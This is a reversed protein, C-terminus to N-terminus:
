ERLRQVRRNELIGAELPRDVPIKRSDLPLEPEVYGIVPRRRGPRPVALDANVHISDQLFRQAVHGPVGADGVDADAEREVAVDQLELHFIVSFAEARRCAAAAEPEHGHAFARRQDAAGDVKQARCGARARQNAQSDRERGRLGGIDSRRIVTRSASSWLRTRRPKRRMSSSSSAIATTPSAAFPSSAIAIAPCSCGATTTISTAMGPVFPRAAVFCITAVCGFMATSISLM